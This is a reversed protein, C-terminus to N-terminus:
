EETTDAADEANEETEATDGSETSEDTEANEESDAPENAGDTGEAEPSTEPAAFLDKYEDIKVDINANTILDQMKTQMTANDVKRMAIERKIQDEIEELPKVDDIAVRDTVKIIHYGHQTQVPESIEDVELNYAADEFESVMRGPGFQGLDGGNQASGDSSYEQALAAFDEGANLKDLVENATEEDEVLIHSAVLETSMREYHTNIEEETVEIDETIAKEQLIKLKIDETMQEKLDDEDVYGSGQIVMEWQDGYQSKMTDIESNVEAEVEEDSVEYNNELITQIVLTQIAQEGNTELLEEYLAEKTINGSETEVVTESEDSSCASLAIVSAAVTVTMLLKKM